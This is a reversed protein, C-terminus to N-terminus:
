SSSVNLNIPPPVQQGLRMRQARELQNLTREIERSITTEYRLLRDLQPAEPVSRCVFELELKRTSITKHEERYRELRQIEENVEEVFNEKCKKVSAYGKQKREQDSCLSTDLWAFYSDFLKRTCNEEEADEDSGYVKTLIAQDYEPDFGDEDIAEKLQELLELCEQLAEPNGIWRILGGNSSLQPLRAAEERYREKQDWEGFEAQARIEAVEAILVRRYRWFLTALKEVLVEELKGIPQYHNRLGNLLVDFEARSESTLVAVRSFIGHTTANLKSKNKGLQSRPGAAKRGLSSSSANGRSKGESTEPARM